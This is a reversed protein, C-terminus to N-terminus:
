FRLILRARAGNDILEFFNKDERSKEYQFFYTFHYGFELEIGRGLRYVLGADADAHSQRLYV